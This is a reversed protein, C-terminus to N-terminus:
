IRIVMRHTRSNDGGKHSGGSPYPSDRSVIDLELCVGFLAEMLFEVLTIFHRHRELHTVAFEAARSIEVDVEVDTGM